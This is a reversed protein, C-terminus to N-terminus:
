LNNLYTRTGAKLKKFLEKENKNIINKYKVVISIILFLLLM